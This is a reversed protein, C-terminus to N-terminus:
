GPIVIALNFEASWAHLTQFPPSNVGCRADAGPGCRLGSMFLPRYLARAGLTMWKTLYIDLGGGVSVTGGHAMNFTKRKDCESQRITGQMFSLGLGAQLYPVVYRRQTPQIFRFKLDLTVNFLGPRQINGLTGDRDKLITGNYGLELGFIPSFNYGLYPTLYVLPQLQEFGGSPRILGLYGTGMGVYPGGKKHYPRYRYLLTTTRRRHHRYRRYRRHQRHRRYRRHPRYRYRRYSRYRYPRARRYRRYPKCRQRPQCQRAPASRTAAPASPPPPPTIVAINPSAAAPAAFALMLTTALLPILHRRM